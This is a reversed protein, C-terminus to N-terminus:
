EASEGNEGGEEKTTPAESVEDAVPAAEDSTAIEVLRDISKRIHLQRGISERTSASTFFQRLSEDSARQMMKEVEADVDADSVEVGEIEALKQVALSRIVIREAMPRFEARFEEETKGISDLYEQLSEREGVYRRREDVLRDIEHRVMIDPFDLKALDVLAKIAREELADRADQEKRATLDAAIKEKVADLTELGQGLSKAFEDDLDPLNKEKVENVLVRFDCDQGGHQGYQSPLTLTFERTEGKEAGELQEAFGPLAMPTDPSLHYWGEKEEIIKEGDVSGEVEISLLDGSKAAREVPEWPAQAFRLRELTEAVESEDLTVPDAALRIEHYDGLEVTPSVAVTAKFSLPDLQIVEVEPQAIADVEHEEIAKEYVEPLLHEAADEVLTERGFYRELMSAPAKGKRFGPVTTKAGIRQYAKRVAKEMEEPDVEINLVVQSGEIRDTSVKM